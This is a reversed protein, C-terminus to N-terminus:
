FKREKVLTCKMFVSQGDKYATLNGTTRSLTHNYGFLEFTIENEYFNGNARLSRFTVTKNVDDFTYLTETNSQVTVCNLTFEKAYVPFQVLGLVLILFLKKTM